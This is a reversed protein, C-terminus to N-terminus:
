EIIIADKKCKTKCVGCHICRSQDVVFPQKIVGSIADAPCNRACLSCGICKEADISVKKIVVNDASPSIASVPCVDVCQGCSRCKEAAIDFVTLEDVFEPAGFLCAYACSGCGVCLEKNIIYPM